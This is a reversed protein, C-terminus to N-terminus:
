LPCVPENLPPLEAGADLVYTGGPFLPVGPVEPVTITLQDGAVSGSLRVVPGKGLLAMSSHVRASAVFTNAATLTIPDEVVAVACGFRLEAGATIAILEAQDSGWEGRLLTEDPEMGDGCGVLLLLILGSSAFRPLSRDPLFHHGLM